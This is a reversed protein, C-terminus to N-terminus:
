SINLKRAVQKLTMKRAKRAEFLREGINKEYM